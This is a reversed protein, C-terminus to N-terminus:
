IMTFNRWQSCFNIAAKRFRWLLEGISFQQHVNLMCNAVKLTNVYWWATHQLLLVNNIFYSQFFFQFTCLFPFSDPEELFSNCLLFFVEAQFPLWQKWFYYKVFFFFFIMNEFFFESQYGYSNAVRYFTQRFLSFQGSIIWLQDAKSRIGGTQSPWGHSM